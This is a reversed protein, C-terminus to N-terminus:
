AKRARNISRKARTLSGILRNLWRDAPRSRLEFQIWEIAKELHVESEPSSPLKNAYKIAQDAYVKAHYAKRIDSKYCEELIAMSEDLTAIVADTLPQESNASFLIVAYTNRVPARYRGARSLAADIWQFALVYQKKHALYIAAQQLLSHSDDRVKAREYFELGDQWKEFARTTFNADYAGRRFIDYRSIKTPSVSDHFRNLLSKIAAPQIRRMVVEAVNRSRPVYFAQKDDAFDGDYSSVFSSLSQMVPYIDKVDLPQGSSCYSIIVDLPVPVRCSYMYCCVLLVDYKIPSEIRLSNLAEMYREALGHGLIVSDLVEFFTPDVNMDLGGRIEAEQLRRTLGGPIKNKVSQVDLECLGTVDLVDYKKKEFRHAISDYIYDREAAIIRVLACGDFVSIAEWSDAANDIHLLVERGESEIDRRLLKAKEPTIEDFYFSIGFESSTAALLKLLTTKGTLPGGIIVVGKKSISANRAQIFHRTKHLEGYLIDYWSPEAGLYFETITRVAVGAKDPVLYEKFNEITRYESTKIKNFNPLQKFYNLVEKTDGIAIQFGMSRYFEIAEEDEKRLIIWSPARERGAITSKSLALLVGADAVSYGWYVTPLRSIRDMYGYWKDRDREFSSAIEIPSFDFEVQDYKVCGHLAIYDIASAENMSPGRVSVDNLYFVSSNEFIRFFLDDINTTFISKWKVKELVKYDEFFSSVTFRSSLFERLEDRKTSALVQCVQALSLNGPKRNFHKEIEVKLGDGVPMEKENGDYMGSALVSFGAGAFLNMGHALHHKFLAENDVKMLTDKVEANLAQM